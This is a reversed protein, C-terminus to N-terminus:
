GFTVVLQPRQSAAASDAASFAEAQPASSSESADEVILGNNGSRYMARVQATVDVAM